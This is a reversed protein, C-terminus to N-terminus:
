NEGKSLLFPGYKKDSGAIHNILWEKLFLMLESSVTANGAKFEKQFDLVKAVLDKHQQKHAETDPYGHKDFMAEEVAFHNATYSILGDLIKGMADKGQGQQMADFLDNLMGVLEQHQKDISDMGVSFNPGWPMLPM